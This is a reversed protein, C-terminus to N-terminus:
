EYFGRKNYFEKIFIKNVIFVDIMDRDETGSGDKNGKKESGAYNGRKREKERVFNCIATIM